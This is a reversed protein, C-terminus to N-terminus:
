PAPTSVASAAARGIRCSCVHPRGARARCPRMAHQCPFQAVLDVADPVIEPRAPECVRQLHDLLDGIENEDLAEVLHLFQLLALRGREARWHLPADEGFALVLAALVVLVQAPRLELIELRALHEADDVLVDEREQARQATVTRGIRAVHAVRPELHRAGGEEGLHDVLEVLEVHAAAVGLAVDVFVHEALDGGGALVALEARRPVDDGRHDFQHLRRGLVVIQSGATPM